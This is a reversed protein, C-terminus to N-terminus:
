QTCGSPHGMDWLVPPVFRTWPLEQFGWPATSDITTISPGVAPPSLDGAGLM